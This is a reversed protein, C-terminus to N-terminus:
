PRPAPDPRPTPALKAWSRGDGWVSRADVYSRVLSTLEPDGRGNLEESAIKRAVGALFDAVQVRPDHESEVLELRHLRDGALERVQAIRDDSLANQRDHVISVPTADQSWYDAARVVAPILPDLAPVSPPAELLRERYEVVRLKAQGLLHLVDHHGNSPRVEALADLVRFFAEVPTGSELRDRARLVTNTARLFAQWRDAGFVRGADRYLQASVLITADDLLLHVLRDVLLFTKDVLHVHANGYLPGTDGLLWLLAPRHKERLVHNAKYETAPSTIRRRLEDICVRAATEDIRVGAHAFVDTTAGVLKEGEYGSEDCAIEVSQGNSALEERETAIIFRARDGSRM